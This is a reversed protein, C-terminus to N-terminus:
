YTADLLDGPALGLVREVDAPSCDQDLGADQLFVVMKGMVAELRDYATKPTIGLRRALIKWPEGRARAKLVQVQRDTLQPLQGRRNLLDALGILSNALVVQGAAVRKFAAQNVALSDSKRALGSAGAALCQALVLPRREDTYLCIRYGTKALTEIARPGQLVNRGGLDTSLMLDLVVLQAEPRDALLDEVAVFTDVVRLEPYALQFTERTQSCDDVVVVGPSQAADAVNPM